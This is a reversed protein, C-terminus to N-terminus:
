PLPTRLRRQLTASLEPVARPKAGAIPVLTDPTIRATGADTLQFRTGKAFLVVEVMGGDAVRLVDGKDLPFVLTAMLPKGKGRQIEVRGKLELIQGVPPSAASLPIVVLATVLLALTVALLRSNRAM